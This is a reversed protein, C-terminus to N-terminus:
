ALVQHPVARITFLAEEFPANTGGAYLNGFRLCETVPVWSSAATTGDNSPLVIRYRGADDYELIPISKVPQKTM